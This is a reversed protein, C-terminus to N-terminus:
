HLLLLYFKLNKNYNKKFKYKKLSKLYVSGLPYLKTRTKEGVDNWNDTLKNKGWTLFIDTYLLQSINKYFNTNYNSKKKSSKWYHNIFNNTGHEHGIIKINKRKM